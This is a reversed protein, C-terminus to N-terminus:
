IKLIKNWDIKLDSVKIIKENSKYGDFDFNLIDLELKCKKKSLEITEDRKVFTGATKPTNIFVYNM